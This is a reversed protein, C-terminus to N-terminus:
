LDEKVGDNGGRRYSGGKASTTAEENANETTADAAAAAAKERLQQQQRGGSLADASAFTSSTGASGKNKRWTLPLISGPGLTTQSEANFNESLSLALEGNPQVEATVKAQSLRASPFM